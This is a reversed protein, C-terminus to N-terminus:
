SPLKSSSSLPEEPTVALAEAPAPHRAARADRRLRPVLRLAELAIGLSMKSVGATRDRFTIPVETVTFGAMVARYTLEINFVYGQARLTSPEVALLVPPPDM